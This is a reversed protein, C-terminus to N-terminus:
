LMREKVEPSMLYCDSEEKMRVLITLIHDWLDVPVLQLICLNALVEEYNSLQTLCRLCFANQVSTGLKAIGEHMGM